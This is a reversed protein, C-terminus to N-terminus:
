AGGDARKLAGAVAARAEDRDVDDGREDGMVYLAATLARRMEAIVDAIGILEESAKGYDDAIMEAILALDREIKGAGRDVPEGM